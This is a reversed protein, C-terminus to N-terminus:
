RHRRPRCARVRARQERRLSRVFTRIHGLKLASRTTPRRDFGLPQLQVVFLSGRVRVTSGPFLRDVDARAKTLKGALQQELLQDIQDFPSM